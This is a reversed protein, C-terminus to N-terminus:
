EVPYVCEFTAGCESCSVYQVLTDQDEPLEEGIIDSFMFDSNWYLYGGCFPCVGFGQNSIPTQEPKELPVFATYEMGCHSWSFSYQQEEDNEDILEIANLHLAKECRPCLYENM